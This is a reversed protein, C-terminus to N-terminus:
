MRFGAHRGSPAFRGPRDDQLLSAVRATM